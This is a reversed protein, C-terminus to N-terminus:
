EPYEDNVDIHGQSAIRQQYSLFDKNVKIEVIGLFENSLTLKILVEYQDFPCIVIKYDKTDGHSGTSPEKIIINEYEM